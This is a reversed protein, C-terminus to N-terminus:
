QARRSSGHTTPRRFSRVGNDQRPEPAQRSDPVSSRLVAHAVGSHPSGQEPDLLRDDFLDDEILVLLQQHSM